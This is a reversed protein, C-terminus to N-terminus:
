RRPPSRRSCVACCPRLTRAQSPTLRRSDCWRLTKAASRRACRRSSTTCRVRASCSSTSKSRLPASRHASRPARLRPHARARARARVKPVPAAGSVRQDPLVPAFATGPGMEALTSVAQQHRLLTKPAVVVLPKRFSRLLQRRLVHFYQAPTSPNVVVMNTSRPESNTFENSDTLQLFREMRCSSHEPGAGDYGHPLLLVLGNQRLWKAESSSVFTDITVQAGNNFDGFQAEWLVLNNPDELSYGYEFAM